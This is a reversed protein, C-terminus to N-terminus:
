SSGGQAAETLANGALAPGSGESCATGGEGSGPAGSQRPQQRLSGPAFLGCCHSGFPSKEVVADGLGLPAGLM